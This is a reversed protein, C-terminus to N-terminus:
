AEPTHLQAVARLARQLRLEGSGSVQVANAGLERLQRHFLQQISEREEPRDRVRDAIWAIDIDLLLYMSGLRVRAADIIWEPCGGYYHRSYVVTSVLDTDLILRPPNLALAADELAIQGRAIPEVDTVRLARQIHTAYQRAYEPVCPVGLHTALQRALVTKGTSESGTLVIRLSRRPSAEDRSQRPM